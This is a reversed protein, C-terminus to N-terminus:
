PDDRQPKRDFYDDIGYGAPCCSRVSTLATFRLTVLGQPLPHRLWPSLSIPHSNPSVAKSGRRGDNMGDAQTYSVPDARLNDNAVDLTPRNHGTEVVV